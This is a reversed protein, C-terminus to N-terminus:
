ASLSLLLESFETRPPSPSSTSLRIGIKKQPPSHPLPHLKVEQDEATSNDLLFKGEVNLDDVNKTPGSLALEPGTPPNIDNGGRWCPRFLQFDKCKIVLDYLNVSPLLTVQTQDFPNIQATSLYSFFFCCSVGPCIKFSISLLHILYLELKQLFYLIVSISYSM